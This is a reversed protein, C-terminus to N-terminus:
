KDVIYKKFFHIKPMNFRWPLGRRKYASDWGVSDASTHTIQTFMTMIGSWRPVQCVSNEGIGRLVLFVSNILFM